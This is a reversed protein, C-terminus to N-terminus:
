QSYFESDKGHGALSWVMQGERVKHTMVTGRAGVAESVSGLVHWSGEPKWSKM